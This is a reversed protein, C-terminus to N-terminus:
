LISVVRARYRERFYLFLAALLLLACVLSVSYAILLLIDIGGMDKVEIMSWILLM